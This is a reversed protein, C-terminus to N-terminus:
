DNEEDIRRSDLLNASVAFQRSIKELRLSANRLAIVDQQDKAIISTMAYGVGVLNLESSTQRLLDAVSVDSAADAGPPTPGDDKPVFEKEKNRRFLSGM